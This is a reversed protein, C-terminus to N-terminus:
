KNDEIEMLYVLHDRLRRSLKSKKQQILDYEMRMSRLNAALHDYIQGWMKDEKTFPQNSWQEGDPSVYMGQVPYADSGDASKGTFIM